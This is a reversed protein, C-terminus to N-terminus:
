IEFYRESESLQIHTGMDFVQTLNSFYTTDPDPNSGPVKQELNLDLTRVLVNCTISTSLAVHIVITLIFVPNSLINTKDICIM